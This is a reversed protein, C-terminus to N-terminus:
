FDSRIGRFIFTSEGLHYLLSFGNMLHPNLCHHIVPYLYLCAVAGSLGSHMELLTDPHKPSKDATRLSIQELYLYMYACLHRFSYFCCCFQGEVSLEFICPLLSIGIKM